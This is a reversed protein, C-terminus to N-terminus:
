GFRGGRGRHPRGYGKNFGGRHERDGGGRGFERRRSSSWPIKINRYKEVSLKIEKLDVNADYVIDNVISKENPTILTFARGEKGMRASRGVRHVYVFPDEPADFNIIDTIGEIDLGRAAVNTAILFQSRNRFHHLSTERKAQTMGGHLVMADNGQDIIVKYVLDAERQTRVFIIAKRPKNQDIYALLAAFKLNRPVVFYFHTITKVSLEDEKGVIVTAYDRKMHRQAIGVIEKPMTASFLLLQKNEPVSSIIREIDAIFGMDLMTDGEDLVLFRVRDFRLAGREMLDLVRGPTGVLITAGQRIRDIQANISVGGYVLVVKEHVARALRDTVSFIQVALERSPALIVAYIGRERRSGQMIPMLFAITKGSGTKARVIADRGSLTIPLAIEQVETATTFGMRELEAVLDQKLQMDSFRKM